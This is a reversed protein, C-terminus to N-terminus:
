FDDLVDGKQLLDVHANSNTLLINVIFLIIHMSIMSLISKVLDLYLAFLFFVIALLFCEIKGLLFAINKKNIKDSSYDMVDDWLQISIIISMSSVMNIKFLMFGLLFAVISEQYGYLGSPMKATLEWGMGLSFSSLFLSLAVIPDLVFAFSLLLLAYPLGGYKVTFFLNRKKGINDIDQDM